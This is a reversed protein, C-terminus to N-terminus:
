PEVGVGYMRRQAGNLTGTYANMPPDAPIHQELALGSGEVLNTSGYVTYQKNSVSQWEMILDGSIPDIAMSEIGLYSADDTPITGAHFESGDIFHDFDWDSHYSVNTLSLFYQLEWQDELDDGDFDAVEAGFEYCGMDVFGQQIRTRGNLDTGGIMWAENLGADICPSTASLHFNSVVADVFQPENTINSAWPPKPDTCTYEIWISPRDEYWNSGSLTAANYYVVCNWITGDYTGGGYVATNEVITCNRAEGDYSGGGAGASNGEIACSRVSAFYAGGGNEGATNGSITCNWASGNYVGGGDEGAINGSITCNQNTGRYTGGGNDATNASVSCDRLASAFAGGGQDATNGQIVCDHIMGQFLGGGQELAENGTIACNSVVATPECYVAGGSQETDADGSTRTHGNTLTFGELRAGEGLYACRVATDGLPGSGVIFTSEPGNVSSVTVKNTIAIRNTMSGHVVVGGTGYMGNTVLVVGGDMQAAIAAPINTAATAWTEFPPIHSGAHAVYNTYGSVVHVTVTSSAVGDLNWAEMVVDYDGLTDYSHTAGLSGPDSTGDGWLWRYGAPWGEIDAEFSFPDGAFAYARSATIVVSLPGLQGGLYFEDCGLDVTGQGIRPEGDIDVATAMWDLNTGADVCPSNTVIHPNSVGALGPANTINGTDGPDPTTCTYEIEGDSYNPNNPADNYFVISNCAFGSSTGGGRNGASNSTIFCNLVTGQYTGGGITGASNSSIICSQITGQYTGGGGYNASNGSSICNSVTASSECWAGGGSQETRAVGSIRTHGNTLTFGELRAGDGLYACRVASEGLPGAGVIFTNEPGTASRVVVEATTIAVRNTLGEHVVKGGTDYSGNAVLVVGGPLAVDIADQINTAATAWSAYPPTHSGIHSVYNTSGGVVRVHVTTSAFGDLNWARLEVSYDGPSGFARRMQLVNPSSDGDGWSWQYGAPMGQIEAEFRIPVGVVVNTYEAWIDVSLPGVLGGAHVEDCGMDVIGNGIRPEGDIDEAASMWTENTGADVCPSTWVIHPNNLGVLGPANTVIGVGGLDPTTCTYWGYHFFPDNGDINPRTSAENYYVISNLILTEDAGGGAEASNGVITCNVAQGHRVGGGTSTASNGYVACNTLATTHSGGGWRAHNGALTCGVGAGGRMGGGFGSNATNGSIMCDEALTSYTGGGDEAQNSTITCDVATGSYVGGGSLDASNGSIVCGSVESDAVGGGRASAENGSIMCGEVTGGYAGGGAWASLNSEVLSYEVHAEYTGGGFAGTSNRAIVCDELTGRYIGGGRASSANGLITCNSLVASSECWAGGGSRETAEDGSRRTAGHTLTFGELRAGASVYACRVAGDGLPGSGLISTVEPGNVSRVTVANTVAIRNTMSGQVAVGGTDYVGNTVLVKDGAISVDIADQINTAANVWNTYPAKHLGSPSVYHTAGLAIVPFVVFAVVARISNSIGKQGIARKM